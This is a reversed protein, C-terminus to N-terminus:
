TYADGIGVVAAGTGEALRDQVGIGVEAQVNDNEIQASGPLRDM